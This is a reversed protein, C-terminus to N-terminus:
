EVKYGIGWITKIFTKEIGFSHLKERLNKIHSDITRDEGTFDIGWILDVLHDRTLANGKHEILVALLDFETQTLNIVFEQYMVNRATKNLIIGKYKLVDNDMSAKQTRRLLAKVRALLEADDFPKVLYDDAGATLGIVKDEVASKATLLIIPVSSVKRVREITEWGDMVPMMVDLIMLDFDNNLIQDCAEKGNQAEEILYNEQQLYIRLLQRMEREDDVILIRNM